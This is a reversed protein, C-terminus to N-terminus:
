IFHETLSGVLKGQKLIPKKVSSSVMVIRPELANELLDLFALTVRVVSYVNTEYVEKFTDISAKKASWTQPIYEGNGDFKVGRIGANNILVDM